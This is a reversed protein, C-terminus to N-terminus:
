GPLVGGFSFGALLVAKEVAAKGVSGTVTATGKSLDVRVEQAGPLASLAKEVTMRCHACAMGDIKYTNTPIM